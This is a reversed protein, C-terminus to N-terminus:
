PATVGALDRLPRGLETLLRDLAVLPLGVVNPYSGEIGSVLLSGVGQIAYAGAKGEWEGSDLYWAVEDDGISRMRVATREVTSVAVPDGGVSGVIAIGTVVDHARGSLARLMRAAESRDAPKALIEGDLDIVTDAGLVLRDLRAAEDADTQRREAVLEAKTRALREVLDAPKEGDLPREDAAAAEVATPEVGIGRLLALRRPSASALVFESAGLGVRSM